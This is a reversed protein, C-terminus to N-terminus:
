LYTCIENLGKRTENRMFFGKKKLHLPFLTFSFLLQECIIDHLKYMYHEPLNVRKNFLVKQVEKFSHLIVVKIDGIVFYVSAAIIYACLYIQIQFSIVLPHCSGPM